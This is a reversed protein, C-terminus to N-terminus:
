KNSFKPVKNKKITIYLLLSLSLTLIIIRLVKSYTSTEPNDNNIIEPHKIDLLYTNTAIIDIKNNSTIIGTSSSISSEYEEKPYDEEEIKYGFGFPINFLNISEGNKLTFYGIGDTFEVDGYKTNLLDLDPIQNILIYEDNQEEENPLILTIKFKFDRTNDIGATKYKTKVQKTVSIAGSDSIHYTIPSVISLSKNNFGTLEAKNKIVEKENTTVTVPILIHINEGSLIQSIKFRITNKNKDLTYDILGDDKILKYNNIDGEGEKYYAYQNPHSIVASPLYDYVYVDQFSEYNSKNDVVVDYIIKEGKQVVTPEEITGSAVYSKKDIGLQVDRIKVETWEYVSFNFHPNEEGQKTSGEWWAANLAKANQAELQKANEIPAQMTVTMTISEESGLTFDNGNTDKRLDIAIATVKTLDSPAETSWIRENSLDAASPHPVDITAKGNEYLNINKSTSYYVVPKVGLLEPQLTNINVFSGKWRPTVGDDYEEFVDYLVLGSSLMNKQSQYRLQYSYYGGASAIVTGDHGDVFKTMDATKVGKRFSADSATNFSIIGPVQAYVTDTATGAPNGDNDLDEMLDKDQLTGASLSSLSDAFGNSLNGSNSKYAITNTLSNGYDSISDWDYYATFSLQMGSYTETSSNYRNTQDAAVKAKVILMDRGTGRWNNIISSTAPIDVGTKYGKVSITDLNAYVGIPLLDYFTGNKQETIIGYDYIEDATLVESSFDRKEYAYATYDAVIRRNLVDNSFTVDKKEDTIGGSIRTYLMYDYEHAMDTTGYREQDIENMVSKINSKITYGYNPSSYINNGKSAYLTNVNYVYLTDKGNYLSRVKDSNILKTSIYLRLYSRYSTTDYSAKIGTTGAPLDIQNSSSIVSENNDNDVFKYSSSTTTKIKGLLQWDGNTKYYINILPFNQYDTDNVESYGSHHTTVKTREDFTDWDHNIYNYFSYSSIYFRTMEYDGYGLRTYDTDGASAMFDENILNITYPSSGYNTIDAESGSGSYTLSFYQMHSANAWNHNSDANGGLRIKLNKDSNSLMNLAGNMQGYREHYLRSSTSVYGSAMNSTSSNTPKAYIDDDLRGTPLPIVGPHFETDETPEIYVYKYDVQSTATKTDTAGDVGVLNITAKNKLTHTEGDQLASKPYMVMFYYYKFEDGTSDTSPETSVGTLANPSAKHSWSGPRIYTAQSTKSFCSNDYSNTSASSTGTSSNRCYGIVTGGFEDTVEDNFTVTYPQTANRISGYAYWIVYLYDDPNWPNEPSSEPRIAESWNDNWSTYVNTQKASEEDRHTNYSESFSYIAAHSSNKLTLTNTDSRMDVEGDQNLDVEVHGKIEKEYGDALESPVPLIWTISCEFTYSASTEQNNELVIWDTGNENEYRWNFGTGGENPYEVLPIDVIQSAIPDGNRDYYLYRPIKIIISGPPAADSGGMNFVMQYSAHLGGEPKSSAVYKTNNAANLQLISHDSENITGTDNISSNLWTLQFQGVGNPDSVPVKEVVRSTKLQKFISIGGIVSAIAILTLAIIISIRKFIIKKGKDTM